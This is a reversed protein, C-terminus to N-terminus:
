LGDKLGDLARGLGAADPVPLDEHTWQRVDHSNSSSLASLGRELHSGRTSRCSLVLVHVLGAVRGRGFLDERVGRLVLRHHDVELEDIEEPGPLVEGRGEM